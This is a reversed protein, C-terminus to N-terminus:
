KQKKMSARATVTKGPEVTVTTTTPAYGDARFELQHVGASAALHGGTLGDYDDVRGMRTGDLYVEAQAPKVKVRVSGTPDSPGSSSRSSSYGGGGGGYSSYSSGYYPDYMGMYWPDYYGYLSYPNYWAGYSYANWRSAGYVWPNYALYSYSYWPSYVNGPLLVGDAGYLSDRSV